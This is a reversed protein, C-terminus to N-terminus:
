LPGVRFSNSLAKRGKADEALLYVRGPHSLSIQEVQVGASFTGAAHTRLTGKSARLRVPAQFSRSAPGFARLTVQFPRDWVQDEIPDFLFGALQDQSEVLVGETGGDEQTGGDGGGTPTPTAVISFARERLASRGDALAVRIDYEGPALGEPVPVVLLGDRDAFPIDVARGALEVTMALQAPDIDQTQYDVTLPLVASVRVSLPSPFGAPIREPEVSVISPTPLTAPECAWLLLLPLVTGLARKM